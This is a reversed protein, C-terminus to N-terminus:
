TPCPFLYGTVNNTHLLLVEAEKGEATPISLPFVAVALLTLLFAGLIQATPFRTKYFASIATLRAKLDTMENKPYERV